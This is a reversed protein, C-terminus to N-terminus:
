KSATTTPTPTAGWLTRAPGDGFTASIRTLPPQGIYTCALAALVAIVFIAGAIFYKM